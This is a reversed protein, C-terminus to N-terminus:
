CVEWMPRPLTRLPLAGQSTKLGVYVVRRTPNSLNVSRSQIGYYDSITHTLWRRSATLLASYRRYEYESSPPAKM